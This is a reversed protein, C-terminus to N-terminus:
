CSGPVIDGAPGEKHFAPEGASSGLCYSSATARVIVVNEISSDYDSRLVALSAGSYGDHDANYTELAPVASRVLHAPISPLPGAQASLTSPPYREAIRRQAEASGRRAEFADNMHQEFDSGTRNVPDNPIAYRGFAIGAVLALCAAIVVLQWLKFTM